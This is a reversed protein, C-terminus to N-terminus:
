VICWCLKDTLTQVRCVLLPQCSVESSHGGVFNLLSCRFKTYWCLKDTCRQATDLLLHKVVSIEVKRVLLKMNSMQFKSVLLTESHVESIHGGAYKKFPCLLKTRCCFKVTATSM